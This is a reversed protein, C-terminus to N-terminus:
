QDSKKQGSHVRVVSQSILQPKKVALPIDHRTISESFQNVPLDTPLATLGDELVAHLRM